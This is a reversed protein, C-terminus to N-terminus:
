SMEAAIIKLCQTMASVTKEFTTMIEDDTDGWIWFRFIMQCGFRDDKNPVPAEDYLVPLLSVSITDAMSEPNIRQLEQGCRELLWAYHKNPTPRVQNDTIQFSRRKKALDKSDESLNLKLNHFFFMLGGCRVLEKDALHHDSNSQPLSLRCDNSEFPCGDETMWRLLDYFAQVSRYQSFPKFDELVEPILEPSQRFNYYICEPADETEDWPQHRFPFYDPVEEFFVQM